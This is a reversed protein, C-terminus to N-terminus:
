KRSIVKKVAETIDKVGMGFHEILENPEGSEGFRDHVGVFEMPVPHNRALIEAVASGMGGSIQHEEVTVVAGTQEAFRAITTEDMPKITHNNIVAVEIGEKSLEEAALLSNYVLPGCAIIVVDKGERLVNAKGIEFPSDKTTIIPTKERALRFYVPGRIRAALLTAKEAEISDCPTIVTMNPIVRTIAIDETAQHTAGDPGVSVGAHSGAIKVNVDNYCITTRIQEWNRGPSFMAYSTIFPVKGVAALGAALSAMNQEAIGAEIFREPFEKKFDSVKTSDTLDACLVVVNKDGRGALVLGRGFGFRLPEQEVDPQLLKQNLKADQNLM